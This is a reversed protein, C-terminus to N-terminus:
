RRSRRSGASAACSRNRSDSGSRRRLGPAGPITDHEPTRLKVETDQSAAASSPPQGGEEAARTLRPAILSGVILSLVQLSSHNFATLRIRQM